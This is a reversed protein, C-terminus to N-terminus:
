LGLATRLESAWTRANTLADAYGATATNLIAVPVIVGPINVGPYGNFRFATFASYNAEAHEVTHFAGDCAAVFMDDRTARSVGDVLVTGGASGGAPSGSVGSQGIAGVLDGDTTFCATAATVSKILFLVTASVPMAGGAPQAFQLWDNSDDFTLGNTALPRRLDDSATLNFGGAKRNAVYGVPGGSAAFTTNDTLGQGMTSLRSPEYVALVAAHAILAELTESLVPRVAQPGAGM